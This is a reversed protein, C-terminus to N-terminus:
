SASRFGLVRGQVCTVVVRDAINGTVMEVCDARQHLFVGVMLGSPTPAQQQGTEVVAIVGPQVSTPNVATGWNQWSRFAAAGSPPMGGGQSVAWALFAGGWLGYIPNAETMPPTGGAERAAQWYSGIAYRDAEGGAKWVGLQGLAARLIAASQGGASALAESDSVAATWRTGTTRGPAVGPAQPVTTLATRTSWQSAATNLKVMPEKGISVVQEGLVLNGDPSTRELIVYYSGPYVTVEINRILNTGAIGPNFAIRDLHAPKERGGVPLLTVGDRIVPVPDSLELVHIPHFLHYRVWDAVGEVVGGKLNDYAGVSFVGAAGLLIGPLKGLRRRLTPKANEKDTAGAQASQSSGDMKTTRVLALPLRSLATVRLLRSRSSTRDAMHVRASELSWVLKATAWVSRDATAAAATLRCPLGM